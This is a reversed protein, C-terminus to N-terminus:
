DVRGHLWMGAERGEVAVAANSPRSATQVVSRARMLFIPVMGSQRACSKVPRTNWEAIQSPTNLSLSPKREEMKSSSGERRCYMRRLTSAIDDFEVNLEIFLVDMDM